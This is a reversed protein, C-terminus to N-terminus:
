NQEKIRKKLDAIKEENKSLAERMDEILKKNKDAEKNRKSIKPIKFGDM